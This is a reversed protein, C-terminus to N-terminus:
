TLSWFVQLGTQYKKAGIRNLDRQIFRKTKDKYEFMDEKLDKVERPCAKLETKLIELRHKMDSKREDGGKKSVINNHFVKRYDRDLGLCGMFAQTKTNNGQKKPKSTDWLNPKAKLGKECRRQVSRKVARIEKESLGSQRAEEEAEDMALQDDHEYAFAYEKFLLPNKPETSQKSTNQSYNM